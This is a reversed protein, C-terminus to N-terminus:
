PLQYSLKRLSIQEFGSILIKISLNKTMTIMIIQHTTAARLMIKLPKQLHQWINRFCFLEDRHAGHVKQVFFILKM